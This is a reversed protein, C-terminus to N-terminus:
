LPSVVTLIKGYKLPFEPKYVRTVVSSGEGLEKNFWTAIASDYSASLSFARAAFKKRLSLTTGGNEEICAKVEDYQDPSTVISFRSCQGNSYEVQAKCSTGHRKYM